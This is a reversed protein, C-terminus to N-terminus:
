FTGAVGAYSPGVVLDATPRGAEKKGRFSLGIMTAGAAVGVIGVILGANAIAQQTQGKSIDASVDLGKCGGTDGGCKTKLDSYTGQSMAGSVAFMVMGVVGVGAAAIGGIRLPSLKSGSSAPKVPGQAIPGVAVGGDLAVARRSGPALSVTTRVVPRGPSELRAEYTGPEVPYPRGWRERPVDWSGIRLTAAPDPRMVDVTLLGLKAGLEDREVNASDRTPAYKPETAARAAAEESVKEFELWALRTEGMAALCRAIYLHSNPSPVTAYSLKFQEIALSFKKAKFLESGKVFHQTAKQTDGGPSAAAAPPPPPRPPKPQAGAVGSTLVPVALLAAVAHRKWSARQM